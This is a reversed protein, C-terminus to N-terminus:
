KGPPGRPSHAMPDKRQTQEWYPPIDTLYKIDMQIKELSLYKAKVLRLDNKKQHKRKRRATLGKAKIIRRLAGISPQLDFFYKRRKAGYCSALLRYEIIKNAEEQSTKHRFIIRDM